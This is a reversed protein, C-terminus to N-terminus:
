DLQGVLELNCSLTDWVCMGSMSPFFLCLCLFLSLSLPIYHSPKSRLILKTAGVSQKEGLTSM